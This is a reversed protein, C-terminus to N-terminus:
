TWHMVFTMFTMISAFLQQKLSFTPIIFNMKVVTGAKTEVFDKGGFVFHM